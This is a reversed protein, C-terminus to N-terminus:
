LDGVDNLYSVIANYVLEEEDKCSTSKCTVVFVSDKGGVELGRSRLFEMVRRLRYNLSRVYVYGVGLSEVTNVLMVVKNPFRKALERGILSTLYSVTNIRFITVQMVDLVPKIDRLVEIYEKEVSNRMSELYKDDLVAEIGEDSLRNLVYNICGYDGLRYCSDITNVVHKLIDISGRYDPLWLSLDIKPKWGIDGVIGLAVLDMLERDNAIHLARHLLYTTSPYREEAEGLAVPNCFAKTRPYTVHHDIVATNVGLLRELEDVERGDISYDTILVLDPKVKALQQIPIASVRYIGIRPVLFLTTTDKSGYVRKLIAASAIGDSDWHHVIAMTNCTDILKAVKECMDIYMPCV